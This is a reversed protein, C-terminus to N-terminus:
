GVAAPQTAAVPKGAAAQARARALTDLTFRMERKLNPKVSCCTRKNDTIRTIPCTAGQCGPLVYCSRCLEDTEFHPAVWQMFNIDNLEMQGEPTIRGVVNEPMEDLAVTCKMLKGTAGVIFSYPRAAYCVQSGPMRLDYIGGEPNLGLEVARTRLGERAEKKQEIGCVALRDDNDGGWAGIARFRLAFRRDHAFDESLAELFPGLREFNVQDFNVRITINFDARRARMSRLNDLITAYTPSGDRGVRKCDHDQPLGDITIQYKTCGWELLRTAKEETLLYANTTMAHSCNLGYRKVQDNFFPALDEIAEWGYLPEGGFWSITLGRLRSALPEVFARVGQRVEPLMTGNRFKEYCYVCRFNCDESALLILHLMDSRWQQRGYQTRFRAVEDLGEPVLFGRGSLHTAYTDLPEPLPGATLAALAGDRHEPMFEMVAGTFTNWLLMRGDAHQTRANFRSPVWRPQPRYHLQALPGVPAGPARDLPSVSMVESM